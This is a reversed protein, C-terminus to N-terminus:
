DSASGLMRDEEPRWLPRGPHIPGRTAIRRRVLETMKRRWAKAKPRRGAKRALATIRRMRAPTANEMAARHQLMQTGPNYMEVGLARRWNQVVKIGVGWHHGLAVESEQKVAEVLAGCLILSRTGWKVPWPIPGDKYGGVKVTGRMECFLHGGRRARPPEYPGGLLQYRLGSSLM